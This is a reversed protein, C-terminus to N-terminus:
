NVGEAFKAVNTIEAVATVSNLVYALSQQWFVGVFRKDIPPSAPFRFGLSVGGM